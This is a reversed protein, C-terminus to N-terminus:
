RVERHQFFLVEDGYSSAIFPSTLILEGLFVRESVEQKGDDLEVGYIKYLTKGKPESMRPLWRRFDNEQEHLSAHLEQATQSPEFVLKAPANAKAIKKGTATVQAFHDVSLWSPDERKAGLFKLTSRFGRALFGLLASKPDDIVTAFSNAFPNASKQGDLSFMAVLNVSPKDHVFLKLAFGPAYNQKKTWTSKPTPKTALSLRLMGHPAGSAFIGTYQKQESPEWRVLAVTGNRHIAKTRGKPMVDSETLFTDRLFQCRLLNIVDWVGPSGYEPLNDETYQSARIKAWHNAQKTATDIQAFSSTAALLIAAFFGPQRM